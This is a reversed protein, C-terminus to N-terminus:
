ILVINVSHAGSAGAPETPYSHQSANPPSNLTGSRSISANGVAPSVSAALNTMSGRNAGSLKNDKLCSEKLYTKCKHHVYM